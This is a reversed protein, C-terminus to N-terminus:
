SLLPQPLRQIIHLWQIVIITIMDYENDNDNNNNNNINNNDDNNDDNDNNDITTTSTDNTTINERTLKSPQVKTFINLLYHWM